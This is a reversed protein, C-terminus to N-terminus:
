SKKMQIINMNKHGTDKLIDTLDIEFPAIVVECPKDKLYEKFQFCIADAIKQHFFPPTAMLYIIGNLIEYRINNQGLHDTSYKLHELADSM